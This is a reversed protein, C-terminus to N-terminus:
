YYAQFVAAFDRRALDAFPLCAPEGFIEQGFSTSTLAANASPTTITPLTLWGMELRGVPETKNVFQQRTKGKSAAAMMSDSDRLLSNEAPKLAWKSDWSKWTKGGDLCAVEAVCLLVSCTETV